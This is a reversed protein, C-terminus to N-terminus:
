TIRAYGEQQHGGHRYATRLAGRCMSTSALAGKSAVADWAILARKSAVTDWAILARKSDSRWFGRCLKDARTVSAAPSEATNAVNAALRLLSCCGCIPSIDALAITGKRGQWHVVIHAVSAAVVFPLIQDGVADAAASGLTEAYKAAESSDAQNGDRQHSPPMM